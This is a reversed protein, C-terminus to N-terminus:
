LNSNSSSERASPSAGAGVIGVERNSFRVLRDSDLQVGRVIFVTGVGRDRARKDRKAVLIEM